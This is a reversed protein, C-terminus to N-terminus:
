LLRLSLARTLNVDNCKGPSDIVRVAIVKVSGSIVKLSVICLRYNYSIM